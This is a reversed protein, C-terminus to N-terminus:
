PSRQLQSLQLPEGPWKTKNQQRNKNKQKKTKKAEEEKEKEKHTITPRLKIFLYIFGRCIDQQYYSAGRGVNLIDAVTYKYFIRYVFPFLVTNYSRIHLLSTQMVDTNVCASAHIFSAFKLRACIALPAIEVEELGDCHLAWFSKERTCV